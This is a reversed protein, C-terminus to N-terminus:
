WTFVFQFEDTTVVISFLLLNVFLAVYECLLCCGDVAACIM